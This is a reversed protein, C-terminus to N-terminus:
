RTRSMWERAAIVLGVVVLLVGVAEWFPSGSMGSGSILGSGQGIWFLGVLLVVGAIALRYTRM